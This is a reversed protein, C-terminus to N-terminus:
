RWVNWRNWFGKNAVHLYFKDVGCCLLVNTVKYQLLVETKDPTLNVDVASAPVTINLFFVPYLRASDKQM